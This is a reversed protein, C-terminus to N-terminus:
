PKMKKQLATKSIGLKRAAESLDEAENVIQQIYTKEFSELAKKLSLKNESRRTETASTATPNYPAPLDTVDIDGKIGIADLRRILNKLERVNGPWSYDQLLKLADDTIGTIGGSFEKILSDLLMPLDDIRDRLPPIHIPIVNLRYFLDERLQKSDIAAQVDANTAAIVRATFPIIRNGGIRSFQKEELVRLLVGQMALSMDTIEDLFLTGENALELKGIKKSTAGEFAGKEHGFLDDELLEDSAASCSVAILDQSARPSLTHISRVILEKGTGNEGQLFIWAPDALAAAMIEKKLQQTLTSQGDITNKDMTKKRLYQIEEQLRKFNLANKIELLVRDFSLPKEILDYAGLKIARIATEINGHGTIMIVPITSFQKKLEQLVELGDMGPLWIDLLILDPSETSVLKLADYGNNASFVEFGEDALLGGLTQLINKEDDVILISPADM